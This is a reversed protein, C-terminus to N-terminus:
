YFIELPAQPKSSLIRISFTKKTETQNGPNEDSVTISVTRRQKATAPKGEIIGEPTLKLGDPLKGYPWKKAPLRKWTFPPVGGVAALAVKYPVNVIGTPLTKPSVIELNPITVCANVKFLFSMNKHNDRSDTVELHLNWDKSVKPIGELKGFPSLKLGSEHNMRGDNFNWSYPPYGGSTALNLVYPKEIMAIPLEKQTQIKLPPPIFLEPRIILSFKRSVSPMDHKKGQEDEVPTDDLTVSFIIPMPDDDDTKPTEEKPNGWLIARRCTLYTNKQKPNLQLNEKSQGSTAFTLGYNKLKQQDKPVISWAYPENGGEASFIFQYPKKDFADPLQITKDIPIQKFSYDEGPSSQSINGPYIIELKFLNLKLVIMFLVLVLLLFVLAGVTNSMVDLFSGHGLINVDRSKRKKRM